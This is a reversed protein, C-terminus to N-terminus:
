QKRRKTSPRGDSGAPRKGKAKETVHEQNAAGDDSFNLLDDGSEDDTSPPARLPRPHPVHRPASPGPSPSRRPSPHPSPEPTGRPPSDARSSSSEGTRAAARRGIYTDQPQGVRGQRNRNVAWQGEFRRLEPFNDEIVKYVTGLKTTSQAKWGRDWSLCAGRMSDRACARLARWQKPTYGLQSKIDGLKADSSHPPVPISGDKVRHARKSSKHRKQSQQLKRLQDQSEQLLAELETVRSGEDEPATSSANANSSKAQAQPRKPDPPHNEKNRAM